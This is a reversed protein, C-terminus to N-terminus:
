DAQLKREIDLDTASQIIYKIEVTQFVDKLGPLYATIIIKHLGPLDDSQPHLIIKNNLADLTLGKYPFATIEKLMDSDSLKFLPRGFM